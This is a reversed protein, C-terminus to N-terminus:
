LAVCGCSGGSRHILLAVLSIVDVGIVFVPSGSGGSLTKKAFILGKPPRNLRNVGLPKMSSAKLKLYQLCGASAM